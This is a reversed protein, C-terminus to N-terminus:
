QTEILISKTSHQEGKRLDFRDKSYVRLFEGTPRRFQMGVMERINIM